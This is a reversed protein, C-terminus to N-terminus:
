ILINKFKGGNFYNLILGPQHPERPQLTMGYVSLNHTQSRALACVWTTPKTGHQLEWLLKRTPGSSSSASGDTNRQRERRERGRDRFDIAHRHTLQLCYYFYFLIISFQLHPKGLEKKKKVLTTNLITTNKDRM